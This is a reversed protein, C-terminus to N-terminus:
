VRLERDQPRIIELRTM